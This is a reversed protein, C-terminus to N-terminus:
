IEFSPLFFAIITCFVHLDLFVHHVCEESVAQEQTCHKLQNANSGDDQHRVRPGDKLDQLILVEQAFLGRVRAAGRYGWMM